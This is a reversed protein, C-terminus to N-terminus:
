PPFSPLLFSLDLSPYPTSDRVSPLSDKYTTIRHEVNRTLTYIKHQATSMDVATGMPFLGKQPPPPPPDTEDEQSGIM